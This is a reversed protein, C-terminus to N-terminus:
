VLEKEILKEYITKGSTISEIIDNVYPRNLIFDLDWSLWKIVNDSPLFDTEFWTLDQAIYYLFTANKYSDNIVPLANLKKNILTCYDSISSPSEVVGARVYYCDSISIAARGMILAELAVSSSLTVVLDSNEILFYTSCDDDASIIKVRHKLDYENLYLKPDDNSKVYDFREAPHQRVYINCDTKELIWSVTSKVWDQQSEFIKHQGLAAGDWCVNLILLISKNSNNFVHSKSNSTSYQVSFKDVGIRKETISKYVNKEIIKKNHLSINKHMTAYCSAADDSYCAVGNVSLLFEGMQGSDFSVFRIKKEVCIERLISTCLCLGGPAILFDVVGVKKLISELAIYTKKYNDIHEIFDHSNLNIEETKYDHIFDLRAYKEFNINSSKIINNKNDSIAYVSGIKKLVLKLIKIYFYQYRPNVKESCLYIDQVIFILKKSYKYRLLFSLYITYLPVFTGYWPTVYFVAIGKNQSLHCLKNSIIFIRVMGYLWTVHRKINSIM